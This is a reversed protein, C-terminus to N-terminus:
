TVDFWTTVKLYSKELKIIIKKLYCLFFSRESNTKRNNVEQGEREIRDVKTEESFFEYYIEGECLSFKEVVKKKM